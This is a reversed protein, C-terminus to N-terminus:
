GTTMAPPTMALMGTRITNKKACLYMISPTDLLPSLPHPDRSCLNKPVKELVVSPELRSATASLPVGEAFFRSDPLPFSATHLCCLDHYVRVEPDALHGRAEVSGKYLMESPGDVAADVLGLM